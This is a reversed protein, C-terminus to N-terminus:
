QRQVREVPQTLSVHPDIVRQDIRPHQRLRSGAGLEFKGSLTTAPWRGLLGVYGAPEDTVGAVAAADEPELAAIREDETAAALLAECQDLGAHRKADNGADAGPATPEGIGPNREGVARHIRRDSEDGPVACGARHGLCDVPRRETTARGDDHEVHRQPAEVFDARPQHIVAASRVLRDRDNTGRRRFTLAHDFGGEPGADLIDRRRFDCRRRQDDEAVHDAQSGAEVPHAREGPPHELGVRQAGAGVAADASAANDPAGPRIM